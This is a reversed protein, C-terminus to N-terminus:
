TISLPNSELLRDLEMDNLSRAWGLLPSSWHPNRRGGHSAPMVYKLRIIQSYSRSSSHIHQFPEFVNWWRYILRCEKLYSLFLSLSSYAIYYLFKMYKRFELCVPCIWGCLVLWRRSNRKTEERRTCWHSNRKEPHQPLRETKKKKFLLISELGKM